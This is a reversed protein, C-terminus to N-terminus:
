GGVRRQLEAAPEYQLGALVDLLVLFARWAEGHRELSQRERLCQALLSTVTQKILESHHGHWLGAETRGVAAALWTLGDPRVKAAAPQSLFDALYWAYDERPGYQTAVREHLDRMAAVCSAHEGSWHEMLIGKYGMLRLWLDLRDHARPGSNADWVGSAMAHEIMERWRALFGALTNPQRLHTLVWSRLFDGVWHHARYGLELIPAWIEDPRIPDDHRLESVLQAAVGMGWDETRTPPRPPGGREEILPVRALLHSVIGHLRQIWAEREDRDSAQDLSTFWAHMARLLSRSMQPAHVDSQQVGVARLYAAQTVSMLEHLDLVPVRVGQVFCGIETETWAEWATHLRQEGQEDPPELPSRRSRAARKASRGAADTVARRLALVELQDWHNGLQRRHQFAAQFLCSVVDHHENMALLAIGRRLEPSGPSEAWLVVTAQACFAEWNTGDIPPHRGLPGDNTPPRDVVQM